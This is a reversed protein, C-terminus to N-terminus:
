LRNVVLLVSAASLGANRAPYLVLARRAATSIRAALRDMADGGLYRCARDLSRHRDPGLTDQDGVRAAEQMTLAGKRYSITLMQVNRLSGTGIANHFVRAM